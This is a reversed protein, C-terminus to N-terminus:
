RCRVFNSKRRKIIRCHSKGVGNAEGTIIVNKM